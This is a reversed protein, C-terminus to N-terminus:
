FGGEFELHWFLSMFCTAHFGVIRPHDTFRVIIQHKRSPALSSISIKTQLSLVAIIISFINPVVM